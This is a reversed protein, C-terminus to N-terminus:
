IGQLLGVNFKSDCKLNSCHKVHDQDYDDDYADDDEHEYDQEHHHVDSTITTVTPFDVM